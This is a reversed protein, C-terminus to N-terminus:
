DFPLVRVSGLLGYVAMIVLIQKRANLFLQTAEPKKNAQKMKNKKQKNTKNQKTKNQKTKVLNGLLSRETLGALLCTASLTSRCFWRTNPFQYKRPM